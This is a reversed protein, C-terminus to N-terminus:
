AVEGRMARMAAIRHEDIPCADNREVCMRNYGDQGNCAVCKCADAFEVSGDLQHYVSRLRKGLIRFSVGHFTPLEVSSRNRHLPPARHPMRVFNREHEHQRREQRNRHAM